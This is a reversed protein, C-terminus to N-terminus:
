LTHRLGGAMRALMPATGSPNTTGKVPIMQKYVSALKRMLDLEKPSYLVQALQKGGENLFEHLRQSLAQAEYPIKGDGAETLERFAMGRLKAWSQPSLRQKLDAAIKPANVGTGTGSTGMLNRLLDNAFPTPGAEGPVSTARLRASLRALQTREQPEFLTQALLKGKTGTLFADIRDAAKAPEGETLRSFLGQKLTGFEASNRGFIKAIRQAIQVPMQGGPENGVGYALKAVEDPTAKTDSYKGLIKEVAAGVTDGAGRKSFTAKYDAFAARADQQMKLVAPGDGSFKGSAIMDDVRKDFAGMIHELAYVDSGSGGALVARRADGYNKVLAKRVREVDGMTFSAASPSAAKQNQERRANNALADGLDLANDVIQHAVGSGHSGAADEQDLQMATPMPTRPEPSVRAIQLPGEESGRAQQKIANRVTQGHVNIESDTYGLGKLWARFDSDRASKNAQAAIFMAKDVDSAFQPQYQAAGMNYRPKAGALDRPLVGSALPKAVPVAAAQKQRDYAAAVSDGYKQRVAEVDAAHQAGLDAAPTVAAPRAPGTANLNNDIVKLAAMAKPTNTEDLPVDRSLANVVDNRFGAASGPEFSGP